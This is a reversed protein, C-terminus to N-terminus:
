SVGYAEHLGRRLLSQVSEKSYVQWYAGSSDLLRLALDKSYPSEAVLRVNRDEINDPSVGFGDAIVSLCQGGSGVVDEYRIIGTRPLYQLYTEFHWSLIRLQRDLKNDLVRLNARLVGDFREAGPIHGQEIPAEISNWSALLALPNRVAAFCRYRLRLGGLLATFPTPHKLVLLFSDTVPKDIRIEGRVTNAKRLGDRGRKEEFMNDPVEGNRHHTIACGREVIGRSVSDVFGDIWEVIEPGSTSSNSAFDLPEVLAVVDPISNLLRCM